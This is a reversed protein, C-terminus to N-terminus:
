LKGTSLLRPIHVFVVDVIAGFVAALLTTGLWIVTKRHSELTVIRTNHEGQTTKIGDIKESLEKHDARQEQRMESLFEQLDFQVGAGM